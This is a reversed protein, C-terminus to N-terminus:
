RGFKPHELLLWGGVMDDNFVVTDDPLADLQRALDTPMGQPASATPGALVLALLASLLVSGSIVVAERLRRPQPSRDKVARSLRYAVLPAAIVPAVAVTRAYLLSWGLASCWLLIEVWSVREQSRAWVVPIVAVLLITAAVNPQHIDPPQWESVLHGYANVTIPMLLLRPGVPTLCAALVSLAPVAGLRLLLSTDHRRDLALGIVVTFGILPGLFWLGHLCAWVWTLAM